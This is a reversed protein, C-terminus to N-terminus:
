LCPYSMCFQRCKPKDPILMSCFELGQIYISVRRLVKEEGSSPREVVKKKRKRTKSSLLDDKLRLLKGKLPSTKSFHQFADELKFSAVPSPSNLLCQFERATDPAVQTLYESVLGNLLNTEKEAM